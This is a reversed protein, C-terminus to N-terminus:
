RKPEIRAGPDRNGYALSWLADVLPQELSFVTDLEKSGAYQLNGGLRETLVLTKTTSQDLGGSGPAVVTADLQFRWPREDGAATVREAFGGPVFEKARLARLATVVDKVAKPDRPPAAPEGADNFATEFLV